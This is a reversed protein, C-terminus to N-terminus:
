TYRLTLTLSSNELLTAIRETDEDYDVITAIRLANRNAIKEVIYLREGLGSPTFAKPTRGVFEEIPAFDPDNVIYFNSFGLSSPLYKQPLQYEYGFIPGEIVIEQTTSPPTKTPTPTRTPTPTKSRGPTTTASPTATPSPTKSPSPLPPAELIDDNESLFDEYTDVPGSAPKALEQLTNFMWDFQSQYGKLLNNAGKETDYQQAITLFNRLTIKGLKRKEPDDPFVEIMLIDNFDIETIEPLEDPRRTSM